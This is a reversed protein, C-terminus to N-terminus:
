GYDLNEFANFCINNGAPSKPLFFPSSEKQEKAQLRIQRSATHMLKRPQSLSPARSPFPFLNVPNPLFFYGHM